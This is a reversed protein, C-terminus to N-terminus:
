AVATEGRQHIPDGESNLAVADAGAPRDRDARSGRDRVRRGEEADQGGAGRDRQERRRGRRRAEDHHELVAAGFQEQEVALRGLRQFPGAILLPNSPDCEVVAVDRRGERAPEARVARRRRVDDDRGILREIDDVRGARRARGFADNLRMAHSPAVELPNGVPASYRDDRRREIRVGREDDEQRRQRMAARSHEHGLEVGSLEKAEGLLAARRM